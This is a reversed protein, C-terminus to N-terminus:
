MRGNKTALEEIDILNQWKNMLKVVSKQTEQETHIDLNLYDFIQPNINIGNQYKELFDPLQMELICFLYDIDVCDGKVKIIGYKSEVKQPEKILLIQGSSASLQLLICDRYVEDKKSRELTAIKNFPIIKHNLNVNDGRVCGILM